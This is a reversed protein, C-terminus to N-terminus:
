LVGEAVLRRRAEHLREHASLRRRRAQEEEIVALRTRTKEWYSSWKPAKAAANSAAEWLSVLDADSANRYEQAQGHTM